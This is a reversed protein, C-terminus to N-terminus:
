EDVVAVHGPDTIAWVDQGDRKVIGLNGEHVDGFFIRQTEYVELMGDSLYRLEDIEGMNEAALMWVDVAEKISRPAKLRQRMLDFAAQAALHQAYILKRARRGYGKQKYIDGVKSAEERWLFFVQRNKYAAMTDIVKHYHVTVPVVLDPALDRAFEAETSDTTIKIVIGSDNTPYVCGYAGCGFEKLDGMLAKGRGGARIDSVKPLWRPDVKGEIDGYSHAIVKTAWAPNDKM